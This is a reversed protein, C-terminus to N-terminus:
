MKVDVNVCTTGLMCYTGLDIKFVPKTRVKIKAEDPGKNTDSM